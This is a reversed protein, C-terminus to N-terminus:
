ARLDNLQKDSEPFSNLDREKNFGQMGLEIERSSMIDNGGAHKKLFTKDIIPATRLFFASKSTRMFRDMVMCGLVLEFILFVLNLVVISYEHPFTFKQLLPFLSIPLTFFLTFILFAILEPFTENINGSYGFRLRSIELPVWIIQLASGVVNLTDQQFM